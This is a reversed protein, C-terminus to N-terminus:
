NQSKTTTTTQNQIEIKTNQSKPLNEWDKPYVPQQAALICIIIFAVAGLINISIAVYFIKKFFDFESKLNIMKYYLSELNIEEIEGKKNKVKIFNDKLDFNDIKKILNELTTNKITVNTIEEVLQEKIDKFSNEIKNILQKVELM